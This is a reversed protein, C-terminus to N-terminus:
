FKVKSGFDVFKCIEFILKSSYLHASDGFDPLWFISKLKFHVTIVISREIREEGVNAIRRGDGGVGPPVLKGVLEVYEFGIFRAELIQGLRLFIQDFNCSLIYSVEVANNQVKLPGM